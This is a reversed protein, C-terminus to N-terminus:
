IKKKKKRKYRFEKFIDKNLDKTYGVQNKMQNHFDDTPADPSSPYLRQTMNNWKTFPMVSSEMGTAQHSTEKIPEIEDRFRQPVIDRIEKKFSKKTIEEPNKTGKVLFEYIYPFEENHIEELVEEIHEKNKNDDDSFGIKAIWTVGTDYWKENLEAVYGNVKSSFSRFVDEKAKEPNSPSGGRSPASVGVFECLDLYEKIVENKSPQGRLIRNQNREEGYLYLYRLCNNYMDDALTYGPIKGQIKTLINDIIWEVGKRMSPSEHGRATIIAFLCGNSLCELFDDWVPGYQRTNISEQLDLLFAEDGRKRGYITQDRFECFAVEPSNLIRWNHSDGRVIAFDKTSVSKQIWEGNVLNEMHIVTPMYLINDDWDFAYYLLYEVGSGTSFNEFKRIM